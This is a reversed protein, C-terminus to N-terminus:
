RAKRRPSSGTTSTRGDARYGVPSAARAIGSLPLARNGIAHLPLMDGSAIQASAERLAAVADLVWFGRGNTSIAVDDGKIILDTVPTVPLNLQLSQWHQGGDFSVYVGTETM